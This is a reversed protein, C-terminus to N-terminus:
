KLRAMLEQYEKMYQLVQEESGKSEAEKIRLQLDSLNRKLNKQRIGRICDDVAKLRSLEDLDFFSSELFRSKLSEDQIRKLLTVLSVKEGSRSVELLMAYVGRAGEDTFESPDLAEGAKEILAPDTMLVGLLVFEEHEAGSRNKTEPQRDEVARKEFQPALKAKLKGLERRISEAQVGLVVSLRSIYQDLLVENRVHAFTELFESTIRLLGLSDNRNYKKLLSALKFEFIDQASGALKEFAPAGDERIFQDPDKGAPLSLLKVLLGEQLFIELGRLSAAEGAKDGDYVLVAEGVYRKLIRVHEETLATGLTAVTNRFGGLAMRIQDLYGEVIFMRSNEPSVFRKALHLGYFERRKRFIETEPSNIYKPLEQTMIRGGFAVVKGQVNRIPFTVRGRLLDYCNGQAARLVLGSKLLLDEPFGKRSLHDFLGRWDALALGVGAEELVAPEFGRKEMYERALKGSDRNEFNKRYYHFAEENIEFLKGAISCEERGATSQPLDVHAREALQRLAEPFTLNEYKMLFSFVDGGAGCGFCHFIQREANVIFSPTKEQHFPCLAKFTRGARRLPIFGSIIEVIDNLSQVQEVIRDDYRM